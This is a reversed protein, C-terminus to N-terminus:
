AARCEGDPDTRAKELADGVDALLGDRDSELRNDWNAFMTELWRLGRQRVVGYGRAWVALDAAGRALDMDGRQAAATIARLWGDIAKQEAAFRHSKPRRGKLRALTRMALYGAPSYTRLRLKMGGRDADGGPIMRGLWRPMVSVLEERGPRLYDIVRLPEGDKLGVERRIRAFRGPKTKLEAVRIVDEFAM